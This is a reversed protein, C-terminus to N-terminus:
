GRRGNSINYLTRLISKHPSVVTRVAKFGIQYIVPKCDLWAQMRKESRTWTTLLANV